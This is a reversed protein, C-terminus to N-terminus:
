YQLVTRVVCSLQKTLWTISGAGVLTTPQFVSGGGASSQSLSQQGASGYQMGSMGGAGVMAGADAAGAGGYASGM